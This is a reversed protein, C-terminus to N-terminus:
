VNGFEISRKRAKVTATNHGNADRHKTTDFRVLKTGTGSKVKCYYGAGVRKVLKKQM